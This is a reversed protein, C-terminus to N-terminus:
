FGEAVSVARRIRSTKLFVLSDGARLKKSNCFDNWGVTLSHSDLASNYTHQFTWVKNHIDNITVEMEQKEFFSAVGIDVSGGGIDSSKLIKVAGSLIKTQSTLSTQPVEVDAHIPRLSVYAFVEDTAKDALFRRSAVHCKIAPFQAFLTQLAASGSYSEVHGQPYYYVTSSLLAPFHTLGACAHWLTLDVENDMSPYGLPFDHDM